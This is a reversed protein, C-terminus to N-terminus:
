LAQAIYYKNCHLTQCMQDEVEEWAVGCLGSMGKTVGECCAVM